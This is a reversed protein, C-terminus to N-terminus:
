AAEWRWAERALRRRVRGAEELVELNGLVESLVLFRASAHARPFLRAGLADVTLGPRDRLADLLVRQRRQYFGLLRDIHRRHGTWLPGHGPAVWRVPMERVRRISALYSVLARPARSDRAPEMVPNPSTHELLHDATLMLQAEEFYLVCHGPTHGPVHLVAAEARGFRLREGEALSQLCARPVAHALVRLREWDAELAAIGAEDVGLRRFLEAYLAERAESWAADPSVKNWDAPHAFVRAGSAALEAANGFHDLHGHSVLVRRIEPAEIGLAKLGAWLARRGEPTAVGADFLAWGGGAEEILYVNVPGEEVFPIPVVVRHIGLRALAERAAEPSPVLTTAPAVEM